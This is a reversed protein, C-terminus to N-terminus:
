HQQPGIWAARDGVQTLRLGTALAGLDEAEVVLTSPGAIDVVVAAAEDQIAAQAALRASVPVPRAQNDWRTLTETSTFALLARRGDAGQVLVVAMDSTKDHALGRDDYEVEGLMAVVPVLLRADQLLMLVGGHTLDGQAYAALASELEPDATGTDGAFGPDPILREVM